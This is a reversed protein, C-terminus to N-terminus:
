MEFIQRRKEAIAQLKDSKVETFASKKAAIPSHIPMVVNPLNSVQEDIELATIDMDFNGEYIIQDTDPAKFEERRM